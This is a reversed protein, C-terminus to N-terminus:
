ISEHGVRPADVWERDEQSLPQPFESESLLKELAYRPRGKPEVIPDITNRALKKPDTM